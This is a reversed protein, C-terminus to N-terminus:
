SIGWKKKTSEKVNGGAKIVCMIFQKQFTKSYRGGDTPKVGSEKMCKGVELNFKSPRHGAGPGLVIVRAARLNRLQYLKLPM